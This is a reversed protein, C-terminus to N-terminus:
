IARAIPLINDVFQIIHKTIRLIILIAVRLVWSKNMRLLVIVKCGDFVTGTQVVSVDAGPNLLVLKPPIVQRGMERGLIWIASCFNGSSAMTLQHVVEPHGCLGVQFRVIGLDAPTM